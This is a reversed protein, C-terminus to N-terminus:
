ALMNTQLHSALREQNLNLVLILLSQSWEVFDETVPQHDSEHADLGTQDNIEDHPGFDERVARWRPVPVAMQTDVRRHLVLQWFIYMGLM